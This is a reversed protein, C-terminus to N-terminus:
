KDGQSEARTTLENLVDEAIGDFDYTGFDEAYNKDAIARLTVEVRQKNWALLAAKAETIFPFRMQWCFQCQEFEDEGTQYGGSGDCQICPIKALISDLESDSSPTTM